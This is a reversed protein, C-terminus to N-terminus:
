GFAGMLASVVLGVGMVTLIAGTIAAIAAPLRSAPPSKGARVRLLEIVGLVMVAMNGLLALPGTFGSGFGVAWAWLSVKSPPPSERGRKLFLVLGAVHVGLWLMVLSFVSVTLLIIATQQPPM